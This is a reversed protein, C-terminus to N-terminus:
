YCSQGVTVLLLPLVLSRSWKRRKIGHSRSDHIKPDGDNEILELARGKFADLSLSDIEAFGLKLAATLQVTPSAM